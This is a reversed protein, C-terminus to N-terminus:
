AARPPNRNVLQRTRDPEIWLQASECWIEISPNLDSTDDLTGAKVFEWDPMSQSYSLITSGCNGCFKRRVLLGSGGVEDFTKLTQGEINLSGRPVAVNLSFSTGTQRQCDRCHCIGTFLPESACSYTIKGCLCHGNLKSM